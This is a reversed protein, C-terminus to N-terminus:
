FSYIIFQSQLLIFYFVFIYYLLNTNLFPCKGEGKKKSFHRKDWLYFFAPEIYHM